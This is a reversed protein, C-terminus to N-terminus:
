LLGGGVFTARLDAFGDALGGFTITSVYARADTSSRLLSLTLPNGRESLGIIASTDLLYTV